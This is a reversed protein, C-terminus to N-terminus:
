GEEPNLDVYFQRDGDTVIFVTAVSRERLQVARAREAAERPSCADIDIEWTVRYPATM